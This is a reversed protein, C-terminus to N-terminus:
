ARGKGCRLNRPADKPSGADIGLLWNADVRLVAALAKVEFDFACRIGNEIKALAVRDLHIGKRALKGSLRDQTLPPDFRLRAEKVRRGVINRPEGGSNALQV